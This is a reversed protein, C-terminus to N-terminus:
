FNEGVWDLMTAYTAGEKFLTILEVSESLLWIDIDTEGSLSLLTQNLNM